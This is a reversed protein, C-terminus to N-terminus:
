AVPLRGPRSDGGEGSELLFSATSSSPPASTYFTLIREIVVEVLRRRAQMEELGPRCNLSEIGTQREWDGWTLKGYNAM